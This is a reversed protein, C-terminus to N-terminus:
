EESCLLAVLTQLADQDLKAVDGLSREVRASQLRLTRPGLGSPSCVFLHLSRVTWRRREHM